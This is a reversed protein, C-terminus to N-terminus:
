IQIELGAYPVDMRTNCHPCMIPMWGAAFNGRKYRILVRNNIVTKTKYVASRPTPAKKFSYASVYLTHRFSESNYFKYREETARLFTDIM